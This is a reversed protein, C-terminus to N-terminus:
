YEVSPRPVVRRVDPKSSPGPEAPSVWPGDDAPLKIGSEVFAYQGALVDKAAADDADDTNSWLATFLAGIRVRAQDCFLDALQVGGPRSQREAKARGCAATMAFLEAGIDVVRGLFAQKREMAGQWRGMGYFISRALKRTTREVYRLQHALPGFEAYANPVQGKGAVLTPLWGAYFAGAKAVAKLKDDRSADPDIINGAVALHADVAERAILLHMIETSGEFIRMIRLDRLVQEAELGREGRARQSDATEFGRGGRIQVLDDAIKWAMESAYLKLLAAEIRIDNADDDALLCCLDVMAEMAYTTAAIFSIKTSLAEHRGVPRGWQVREAAWGRAVNLCWKSSAVCMAPLSLRGTNLTTLAIKLGRGEAGLVNEDPVFVDHFRTVSNEIGRLGMFANRSEVTIGPSDAEVVFATIGGRRGESKPVRAMVVLLTSIPGNTAWLKVGNLLYGGEVPTASTGLRAPDSGVDPETLLFASVEGAAVRPLYKQKQEGNGFMKVPQPVGISQHASLLTGISGNASGALTLAKCYYLHSLGLGGYKTPLKMGFAGLEALGSFVDDPISAEREIAAGDITEVYPRLRELFAEGAAVQEPSNSPWPDVLDLRLRGLFLEKGFSPKTWETERAAEAVKRAERETPGTKTTSM